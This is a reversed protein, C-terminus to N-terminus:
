GDKETYRASLVHHSSNNQSHCLMYMCSTEKEQVRAFDTAFSETPLSEQINQAMEHIVAPLNIREGIEALPRVDM